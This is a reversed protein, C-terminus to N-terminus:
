EGKTTFSIVLLALGGVGIVIALEKLSDMTKYGESNGGILGQSTQTFTDGQVIGFTVQQPKTEEQVVDAICYMSIGCLILIIGCIQFLKKM